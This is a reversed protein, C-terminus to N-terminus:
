ILIVDASDNSGVSIADSNFRLSHEDLASTAGNMRFTSGIASDTYNEVGAAGSSGHLTTTSLSNNSTSSTVPNHSLLSAHHQLTNSASSSPSNELNSGPFLSTMNALKAGKSDGTTPGTSIFQYNGPGNSANVDYLIQFIKSIDKTGARVVDTHTVARVHYVKRFITNNKKDPL